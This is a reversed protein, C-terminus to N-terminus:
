YLTSSSSWNQKLLLDVKQLSQCEGNVLITFQSSTTGTANSGEAKYVGSDEPFVETITLRHLEGEHDFKFDDFTEKIVEDGKYWVVETAGLSVVVGNVFSGRLRKFKSSM